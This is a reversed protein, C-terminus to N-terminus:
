TFVSRVKEIVPLKSATLRQSLFYIPNENPLGPQTETGDDHVQCLCIVIYEESADTYLIYPKDTDPYTLLPVTM